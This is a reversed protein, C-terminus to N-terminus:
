PVYLKFKWWHTGVETIRLIPVPVCRFTWCNLIPCWSYFSSFADLKRCWVEEVGQARSWTVDGQRLRRDPSDVNMIGSKSPSSVCPMKLYMWCRFFPNSWYVPKILTIPPQGKKGKQVKFEVSRKKSNGQNKIRINEEWILGSSFCVTTYLSMTGEEDVEFKSNEGSVFMGRELRLDSMAISHFCRIKKSRHDQNQNFCDDILVLLFHSRLWHDWELSAKSYFIGLSPRSYLNKPAWGYGPVLLASANHVVYGRCPVDGCQISNSTKFINICRRAGQFAFTSCPRVISVPIQQDTPLLRRCNRSALAALISLVMEWAHCKSGHCKNPPTRFPRCRVDHPNSGRPGFPDHSRDHWIRRKKIWIYVLILLIDCVAFQPTLLSNYLPFWPCAM